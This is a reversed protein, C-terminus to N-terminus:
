FGPGCTDQLCTNEDQLEKALTLYDDNFATLKSALVNDAAALEDLQDELGLVVEEFLTKKLGVDYKVAAQKVKASYWKNIAKKLGYVPQFFTVDSYDNAKPNLILTELAANYGASASQIM